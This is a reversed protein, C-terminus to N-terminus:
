KLLFFRRYRAKERDELLSRVVIGELDMVEFAKAIEASVHVALSDDLGDLVVSGAVLWRHLESWSADLGAKAAALDSKRSM